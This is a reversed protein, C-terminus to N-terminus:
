ASDMRQYVRYMKYLSEGYEHEVLYRISGELEKARDVPDVLKDARGHSVQLINRIRKVTYAGNPGANEIAAKLAGRFEATGPKATKLAVPIIRQLVM